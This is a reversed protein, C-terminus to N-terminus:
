SRSPSEAPQSATFNRLGSLVTAFATCGCGTWLAIPTGVRVVHGIDHSGALAAAAIDFVVAVLAAGLTQGLL